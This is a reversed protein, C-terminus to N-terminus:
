GRYAPETKEADIQIDTNGAPFSLTFVTGRGAESEVSIQGGHIRVIEKCIALGLGTGRGFEKTSFFPRFLNKLHEPEM